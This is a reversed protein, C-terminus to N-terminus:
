NVTLELIYEADIATEVDVQYINPKDASTQWSSLGKQLSKGESDRIQLTVAGNLVKATVQQGDQANLVYRKVFAPNVRGPAQLRGGSNAFIVSETEIRIEPSPTTQPVPTSVLPPPTMAEAPPSLVPESGSAVVGANEIQGATLPRTEFTPQSNSATLVNRWLFGIGLCAIGLSALPILMPQLRLSKAEKGTNKSARIRYATGPKRDGITPEQGLPATSSPQLELVELEPILGV